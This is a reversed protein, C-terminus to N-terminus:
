KGLRQRLRAALERMPKTNRHSAPLSKIAALAEAYSRLADERRGATDLIEGRRTLWVEKRQVGTLIDDVRVLASEPRQLELELEIAAMQLTVLGGLKAIGKELSTLAAPLNGSAKLAQARELFCEPLPEPTLALNRNFDAVAEAHQKLKMGARARLLYADAHNPHRTLFTDLAERTRSFQGAAFLTRARALWVPAFEPDLQTARDFDALAEAYEAHEHHLEGRKLYLAATPERKLERSVNEIQHDINGHALVSPSFPCWFAATFVCLSLDRVVRLHLSRPIVVLHPIM